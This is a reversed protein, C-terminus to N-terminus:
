KSGAGEQMRQMIQDISFSAPRQSPPFDKFSALFEGVYAQAPVLMFAHDPSDIELNAM